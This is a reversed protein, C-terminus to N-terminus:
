SLISEFLKNLEKARKSILNILHDQGFKSGFSVAGVGTQGAPVFTCIMSTGCIENRTDIYKATEKDYLDKDWWIIGQHRQLIYKKVPPIPCYIKHYHELWDTNNCLSIKEKHQWDFITCSFYSIKEQSIFDGIFAENGPSLTLNM